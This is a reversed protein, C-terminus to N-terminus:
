PITQPKFYSPALAAIAHAGLKEAHAALCKADEICNGGVHVVWQLPTGAVAAKWREALCRREDLSLSHCEGTTGNIFVGSVGAQILHSCLAPIQELNLSGDARLPTHPAAILGRLMLKPM